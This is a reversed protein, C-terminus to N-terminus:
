KKQEFNQCMECACKFLHKQREAVPQLTIAKNSVVDPLILNNM